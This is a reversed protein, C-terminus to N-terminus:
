SSEGNLANQVVTPDGGSSRRGEGYNVSWPADTICRCLLEPMQGCM